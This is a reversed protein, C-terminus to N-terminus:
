LKNGKKYKKIFDTEEINLGDEDNSSDCEDEKILNKRQFNLLFKQKGNLSLSLLLDLQRMKTMINICDLEKLVMKQGKQYLKMKRINDQSMFGRFRFVKLCCGCFLKNLSFRVLDRFTIKLRWRNSLYAKIKALM